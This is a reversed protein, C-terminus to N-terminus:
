YHFSSVLIAFAFRSSLLTVESSATDETSLKVGTTNSASGVFLANFTYIVPPEVAPVSYVSPSVSAEIVPVAIKHSSAALVKTTGLEVLGRGTSILFVATVTSKPVLLSTVTVEPVIVLMVLETDVVNGLSANRTSSVVVGL